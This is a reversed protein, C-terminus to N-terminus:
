LNPFVIERFLVVFKRIYNFIIEKIGWVRMIHKVM